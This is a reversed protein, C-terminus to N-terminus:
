NLQDLTVDDPATNVIQCSSSYNVYVNSQGWKTELMPIESGRLSLILLLLDQFHFNGLHNKFFVIFEVAFIKLSIPVEHKLWLKKTMKTKLAITVHLGIGFNFQGYLTHWWIRFIEICNLVTFQFLKLYLLPNCM